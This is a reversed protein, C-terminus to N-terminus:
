HSCTNCRVSPRGDDHEDSAAVVGAMWWWEADCSCVDDDCRYLAYRLACSCWLEQGLGGETIMRGAMCKCRGCGDAVWLQGSGWCQGKVVVVGAGGAGRCSVRSSSECQSVAGSRAARTESCLRESRAVGKVLAVM